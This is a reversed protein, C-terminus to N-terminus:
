GFHWAQTERLMHHRKSTVVFFGRSQYSFAQWFMQNKKSVGNMGFPKKESFSTSKYSSQEKDLQEDTVVNQRGHETEPQRYESLHVEWSVHLSSKLFYLEM